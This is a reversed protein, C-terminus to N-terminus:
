GEKGRRTIINMGVIQSPGCLIEKDTIPEVRFDKLIEHIHTEMKATASSALYPNMDAIEEGVVIGATNNVKLTFEVIENLALHHGVVITMFKTLQGVRKGVAVSRNLITGQDM